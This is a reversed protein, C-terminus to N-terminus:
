GPPAHHAPGLARTFGSRELLREVEAPTVGLRPAAAVLDEALVPYWDRRGRNGLGAIDFPEIARDIRTLLATREEGRPAASAASACARLEPGFIPDDCLLFGKATETRDLRRMTESFSAAAFYLLSQRKFLEFDGM